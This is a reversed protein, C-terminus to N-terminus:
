RRGTHEGPHSAEENRREVRRSLVLIAEYIAVGTLEREFNRIHPSEAVSVDAIVSCRLCSVDTLMSHNRSRVHMTAGKRLSHWRDSQDPPGSQPDCRAAADIKAAPVGLEGLTRPLGVEGYFELLKTLATSRPAGELVLQVLLGPVLLLLAFKPSLPRILTSSQQRM